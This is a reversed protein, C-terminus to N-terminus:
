EALDPGDPEVETTEGGADADAAAGQVCVSLGGTDTARCSWGDLCESAERCQYPGEPALHEVCGSAAGFTLLLVLVLLKLAATV